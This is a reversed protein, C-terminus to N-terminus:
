HGDSMYDGFVENVTPGADRLAFLKLQPRPKPKLEGKKAELKMLLALERATSLNLDPYSGIKKRLSKGGQRGRFYFSKTGGATVIVSLPHGDDSLELRQGAPKLGRLKQDTLKM